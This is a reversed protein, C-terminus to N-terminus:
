RVSNLGNVITAADGQHFFDVTVVTPLKGRAQRCRALRPGLFARANVQRAITVRPAPSTDVWHNVLFLSRATGGRNPECSAAAALEAATRFHFPTEQM